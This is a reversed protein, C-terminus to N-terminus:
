LPDGATKMATRLEGVFKEELRERSSPSEQDDDEDEAPSEGDKPDPEDQYERWLTFCGDIGTLLDELLDRAPRRPDLPTVRLDLHEESVGAQQLRQVQEVVGALQELDSLHGESVAHAEVLLRTVAERETAGQDILALVATPTLAPLAEINDSEMVVDTWDDGSIAATIQAARRLCAAAAIAAASPEYGTLLEEHCGLPDALLAMWAVHIQTPSAGIRSLVVAQAARGSLDGAEAAEIAAQEREVERVIV